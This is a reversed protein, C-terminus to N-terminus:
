SFSAAANSTGVVGVTANNTHPLFSQGEDGDAVFLQTTSASGQPHWFLTATNGQTHFQDLQRVTVTRTSDAAQWYPSLVEDGVRAVKGGQNLAQGPYVAQ